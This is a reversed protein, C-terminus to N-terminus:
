SGTPSPTPSSSGGPAQLAKEIADTLAKQSVAGSYVLVKHGQADFVITHPAGILGFSDRIAGNPDSVSPYTWGYKGIFARAPGTQDEIDVGVFQVKGRYATAVAALDPAERVCPGCWSAWINVVAPRGHLQALLQDFSAPDFAPLATSTTPLLSGTPTAAPSGGGCAVAAALLAAAAVRVISLGRRHRASM